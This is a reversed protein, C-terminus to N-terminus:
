TSKDGDAVCDGAFEVHSWHFGNHLYASNFVPIIIILQDWSYTNSKWNERERRGEDEKGGDREISHLQRAFLHRSTIWRVKHITESFCLVRVRAPLFIQVGGGEEEGNVFHPLFDLLMRRNIVKIRINYSFAPLIIFIPWSSMERNGADFQSAPFRPRPAFYVDRKYWIDILCFSSLCVHVFLKDRDKKREIM